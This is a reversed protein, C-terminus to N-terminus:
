PLHIVALVRRRLDGLQVQDLCGPTTPALPGVACMMVTAPVVYDGLASGAVDVARITDGVSFDELPIQFAGRKDTTANHCIWPDSTNRLLRISKGFTSDGEISVLSAVYVGNPIVVGGDDTCDWSIEHVGSPFQRDALTRLVNGRRDSIRILERGDKPIGLQLIFSGMSLPNNRVEFFRFTQGVPIPTVDAPALRPVASGRSSPTATLATPMAPYSVSVFAGAVPSGSADVVRGELM